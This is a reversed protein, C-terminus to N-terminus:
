EGRVWHHVIQACVVFVTTHLTHVSEERRRHRLVQLLTAAKAWVSAHGCLENVSM